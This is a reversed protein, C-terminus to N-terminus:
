AVQLPRDHGVRWRQHIGCTHFLQPGANLPQESIIRSVFLTHSGVAQFDLIEVERIRLAIEPVQLAFQSSRVTKFPMGDWDIQPKKHHAGLQYALQCATGPIDGLALRRTSKITEVSASTNRLALTFWEAQLPGVLDMPFLNSHRGDDVSVFHVPRPCLYFIMMQEVADPLMALKEPPTRRAARRYMFTDWRRRLRPACFNEGRAVEFLAMRSGAADWERLPRLELTGLVRSLKRDVLRLRPQPDRALAAARVDSLGVRLTFPRMAAVASDLTVDFLEGGALLQVDMLEQPAPLSIALWQTSPRLRRKLAEPLPLRM